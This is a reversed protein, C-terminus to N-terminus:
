LTGLARKMRMTAECEFAVFASGPHMDIWAKVGTNEEQVQRLVAFTSRIKVDM